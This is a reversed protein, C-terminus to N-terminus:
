QARFALLYGVHFCLWQTFLSYETLDIGQGRYSIQSDFTPQGKTRQAISQWSLKLSLISLKKELM